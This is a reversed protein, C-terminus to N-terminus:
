GAFREYEAGADAFEDEPELASFSGTSRSYCLVSDSLVDEPSVIRRNAELVLRQLHGLDKVQGARIIIFEHLSSPIAIYDEELVHAIMAQTGPYFLAAAGYRERSTTLVYCTERGEKDDPEEIEMLRSAPNLSAPNMKWANELAREFLEDMDYGYDAALGNTVVTSFVGGDSAGIQLDCILAFGHGVDRFPVTKLYEKNYEMGILRLGARSKAKDFKMDPEEEPVPADAMSDLYTRALQDLLTDMDEGRSCLEYMGNLYFTPSPDEGRHFTLGHMVQDNMKMVEATRVEVTEDGAERLRMLVKEAALATFENINM